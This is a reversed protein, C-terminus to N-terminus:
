TRIKMNKKKGLSGHLEDFSTFSMRFYNSFKSEDGRLENFLVYFIGQLLRYSVVSHVATGHLCTSRPSSRGHRSALELLFQLRGRTKM